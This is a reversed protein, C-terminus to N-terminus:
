ERDIDMLEEIMPSDVMDPDRWAHLAAYGYKRGYDGDEYEFSQIGMGLDELRQILLGCKLAHFRNVPSVEQNHKKNSASGWTIFLGGNSKLIDVMKVVSRAWYPDHELMSASVVTDVSGSEFNVDHALSVIDVNPGARWDIGTYRVGNLHEHITGNLDMSGFDIVSIDGSFYEPYKRSKAAWWRRNSEHM